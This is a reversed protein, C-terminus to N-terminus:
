NKALELGIAQRLADMSEGRRVARLAVALREDEDLGHCTVLTLLKDEPGVEVPFRLASRARLWNVYGGMEEASAFNPAVIDYYLPSQPDVSFVTVAYPVYVAEQYLTDFTLFPEAKVIAPEMMRALRGFMTGNKMNHGHLILNKDRPRISNAEDLFVTGAINHEGSFARDIYYANDRQVVAFDMESFMSYSLWGVVDLNRRMLPLFRDLMAAREEEEGLPPSSQAQATQMTQEPEPSAQAAEAGASTEPLAKGAQRAQLHYLDRAAQQEKNTRNWSILYSLLLALATVALAGSLLALTKALPPIKARCRRASRTKM